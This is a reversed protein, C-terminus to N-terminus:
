LAVEALLTEIQAAGAEAILVGDLAARCLAAYIMHAPAEIAIEPALDAAAEFHSALIARCHEEALLPGGGLHHALTLADLLVDGTAEIPRDALVAGEADVEIDFALAVLDAAVKAAPWAREDALMQAYSEVLCIGGSPLLRWRRARTWGQSDAPEEFLCPDQWGNGGCKGARNSPCAHYDPLAPDDAWPVGPAYNHADLYEHVLGCGQREDYHGLNLIPILVLDTPARHGGPDGALDLCIGMPGIQAPTITLVPLNQTITTM